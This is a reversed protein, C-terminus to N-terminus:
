NQFLAVYPVFGVCRINVHQQKLACMVGKRDM